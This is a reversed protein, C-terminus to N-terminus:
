GYKFSGQSVVKGKETVITYVAERPRGTTTVSLPLKTNKGEIHRVDTVLEKASGLLKFSLRVSSGSGKLADAMPLFPQGFAPAGMEKGVTFSPTDKTGEAALYWFDGQADNCIVRYELLRYTDKPIQVKQSPAVIVVSQKEKAGYISMFTVKMPLKLTGMDKSAPTLVLKKQAGKVEVKFTKDRFVMLDGLVSGNRDDMKGDMPAIYIRDGGLPRSAGRSAARDDPPEPKDNFSGNLDGDALLVRFAKGFLKLVGTFCCNTYLRVYPKDAEEPYYQRNYYTMEVRFSYGVPKGDVKIKADIAPFRVVTSYRGSEVDGAIPPEKALKGDGNRDFFLLNCTSDSGSGRDLILLQESDGMPFAAYMADKSVRPLDWSGPPPESNMALLKSLYPYFSEQQQQQRSPVGGKLDPYKELKLSVETAPTPAAFCLLLIVGCSSALSKRVM